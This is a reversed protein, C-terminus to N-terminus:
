NIVTAAELIHYPVKIGIKEASKANIYFKPNPDVKVPVDKVAKGNKMIDVVSEALMYGLKEDDAVFGGLAGMKVPKSSYSLVPTTGAAQANDMVLAANGIIITSVRRKYSEVASVMEAASKCFVENYGVGLKNTIKKTGKQDILSSPHGEELLLLVSQM